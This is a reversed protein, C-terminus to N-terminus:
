SVAVLRAPASGDPQAWRRGLEYHHRVLREIREFEAELRADQDNATAYAVDLSRANRSMRYGHYVACTRSYIAALLLSANSGPMGRAKRASIERNGHLECRGQHYRLAAGVRNQRERLLRRKRASLWANRIESRKMELLLALDSGILGWRVAEDRLRTETRRIMFLNFLM